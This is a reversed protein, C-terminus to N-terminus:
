VKLFIKKRWLLWTSFFCLTVYMLSYILSTNATSGHIALTHIYGWHFLGYSHGPRGPDQFHWFNFITEWVDAIAYAFIANSGFVLWPWAAAHMWKPRGKWSPEDTVMSLLSLVVMAIGACFLVYSSTWVKKNIPLYPNWLEGLFISLVGAGMLYLRNMKLSLGPRRMWLGACCGLLATGFAPITSLLGEPDRTKEYLHGTHLTRQLFAIIHRDLWAGLNKDPDLIPFDITPHGFGPTPVFRMLIWYAVLCVATIGLLARIRRVYLFILAVVLYVIAIRTLVGYIRLHTYQFKPMASLFLDIAFILAARRVIKLALKRKHEGREIRGHLAFVISCGVVFLFTPFVLDTITWGNWPIHDLQRYAVSGDGPTNVLIMLAITLGRLIDVSVVRAPKPATYTAPVAESVPQTAATASM